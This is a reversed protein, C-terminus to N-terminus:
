LFRETKGIQRHNSALVVIKVDATRLLSIKGFSAGCPGLRANLASKIFLARNERNPSSKLGIRRIQCRSHAFTLNQWFKSRVAGFTRTTCKKNFDRQKGSNAIIQPWYSSKSMQQASFHSKALVQKARGWIKFGLDQISVSISRYNGTSYRCIM